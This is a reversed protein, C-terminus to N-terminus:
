TELTTEEEDDDDDDDDEDFEKNNINKVENEEDLEKFPTSRGSNDSSLSTTSGTRMLISPTPTVALIDMNNKADGLCNNATRVHPTSIHIDPYTRNIAMTRAKYYYIGLTHWDLLESLRETRNRQIIRQRRNLKSFSYLIKTLQDATEHPSRFRRDVVYIGYPETESLLEEMFAGFGSVNTSVNPIGMVTCEAPTYGWPEYYSAFVGLHCGRVFEEYSIPFLPNTENLFEPHYIIKVRDTALNFLKHKRLANLIKDNADDIVNHTCIPPLTNRKSSLLCKKISILDSAKLINQETPLYGKLCSEYLREGIVKQLDNLNDRLQKTIAQGQLSEVNFNNTKTPFILFAIVTIDSNSEILLRNLRALSELFLDVGKNEFEYRGASFVYITKDLSFDYHGFFHGRVFENIKDKSKAHLNQFEHLATYKKVNLGNPTVVDAERKLLYKAELATINSVTCFVHSCHAAARELCYKHYIQREGAERDTDFKSLNNYFDVKGACLYRGLMTAHTSFITAIAIKWTRIFLLGIGSQWEHYHAVICNKERFRQLYNQTEINKQFDDKMQMAVVASLSNLRQLKMTSDFQCSLQDTEEDDTYHSYESETDSDGTKMVIPLKTKIYTERLESLQRQFEQLFWATAAGFLIADNCEDDYEPLIIKSNTFLDKRWEPLRHRISDLHFLVVQPYGDVLWNGYSADLGNKRLIEITIAVPNHPNTATKLDVELRVNKETYKGLMVYREGYESVTVPVKTRIVTYIGGVKNAVENSIEFLWRNMLISNHGNDLFQDFAYGEIQKLSKAAKKIRNLM